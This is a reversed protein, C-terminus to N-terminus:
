QADGTEGKTLLASVLADLEDSDVPKRVLGQCESMLQTVLESGLTDALLLVPPVPAPLQQRLRRLM